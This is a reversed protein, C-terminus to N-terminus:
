CFRELMSLLARAAEIGKNMPGASREVAEELNNTTIVGFAIPVHEKLMVEMIGRSAEGGVYYYHDTGGKIVCGLAIIGDFRKERALHQCAFPIEFSGPVTVISLNEAKVQAKRLTQLAGELLGNTIDRNFQSVVIAVRHKSSDYTYEATDKKRQM